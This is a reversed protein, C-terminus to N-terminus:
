LAIKSFNKVKKFEIKEDFRNDLIEGKHSIVFTNTDEPLTLLIKLLNDVGEHDLSSDFTEDLLLLNTSVSNKMKAIQRWTFLLALDIRQKEGESFSDYTFEDRYRSRITEKFEEDLDFHVYFDLVQLYKNILKNMVPLYQKIIKTKIGTDKLMESMAANYNYQESSINKEMYLESKDEIYKQLQGKAETLDTTVDNSLFENFQKINNQLSSIEKNNTSIFDFQERVSAINKNWDDISLSITEAEDIILEMRDSLGKAETKAESLVSEKVEKTIPQKCTPCDNTTEFFKATKGIARMQTQVESNAMMNINKQDHLEKLHTECVTQEDSLGDSIDANQKQLDAIKNLNSEIKNEYQQKNEDTLIQIDNIYKKQTEIKNTSIDLKYSLDKLQERLRSTREKLISNMKSFINIDLLDEIVNRRIYAPLQMFPIFSSSGLVVVQHFSKHTLKLINQELIKQYEKAHSSQNIMVDNKWIEFINPKVGRIIKFKSSGISFEIEVVAQKGNISNILQSKSIDRHAKGFLGYAIADLLTSKGSGNQGVILTSKAKNLPIEIFTNGTSLFNKWKVKEFIIM